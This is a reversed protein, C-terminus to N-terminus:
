EPCTSNLRREGLNTPPPPTAKVVMAPPVPTQCPPGLCTSTSISPLRISTEYPQTDKCHKLPTRSEQQPYSPKFGLCKLHSHPHLPQSTSHHPTYTSQTLQFPPHPCTTDNGTHNDNSYHHHHLLPTPPPFTQVKMWPPTYWHRQKPRTM